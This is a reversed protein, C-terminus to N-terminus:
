QEQTEVHELLLESVDVNTGVKNAESKETFKVIKFQTGRITAGIKLFQTPEKLDSTNLGFTDGIWSDFIIRFPEQLFSKLKLKTLFDPHSNKETPNTKGQWEDLNSFGDGDPDQELVDGDAIPLNYQEM